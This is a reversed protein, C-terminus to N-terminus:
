LYSIGIGVGFGIWGIQSADEFESYNILLEEGAKIDKSAHYSYRCASWIDHGEDEKVPTGCRVNATEEGWEANNVLGSEDFALFVTWGHRMDDEDGEEKEIYQVWCWEMFNCSTEADKVGLSYTFERWQMADKFIGVNDSYIDLVLTGKPIFEKAYVGRGKEGADGVIVPVAFVGKANQRDAVPVTNVDEKYKQRLVELMDMTTTLRQPNLEMEKLSRPEPPLFSVEDDGQFNEDYGPLFSNCNFYHFFDDITYQHWFPSSCAATDGSAACTEEPSALPLLLTIALSFLINQLLFTRRSCLLCLHTPSSLLMM